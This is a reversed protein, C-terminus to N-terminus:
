PIELLICLWPCTVRQGTRGGGINEHEHNSILSVLSCIFPFLPWWLIIPLRLPAQSLTDSIAKKLFLLLTPVWVGARQQEVSVYLDSCCCTQIAMSSHVATFSKLCTKKSCTNLVLFTESTMELALNWQLRSGKTDHWSDYAILYNEKAWM